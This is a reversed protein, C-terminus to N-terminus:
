RLSAHPLFVQSGTSSNNINMPAGSVEGYKVLANEFMCGDNRKGSFINSVIHFRPETAQLCLSFLHLNLESAGQRICCPGIGVDSNRSQPSHWRFLDTHLIKGINYLCSHVLYKIKNSIM